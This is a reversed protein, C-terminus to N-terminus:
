RAHNWDTTAYREKELRQATMTEDENLDSQINDGGLVAQLEEVLLQGLEQRDFDRDILLSGQHLCGHRNRRQAAGACKKGDLLLDYLVPKQFCAPHDDAENSETLVAPLGYRNLAAAVARHISCYSGSTGSLAVPHHRSLVITYTLDRAHDVLGGGTYRRVFSRGDPVVGTSQFYGLSVAPESWAYIRIVPERVHLLLAEDVAMNWAPNGPGHHIVRVRDPLNIPM